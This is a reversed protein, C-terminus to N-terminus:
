HGHSPECSDTMGVEPSDVDEAPRWVCLVCVYICAFAFM